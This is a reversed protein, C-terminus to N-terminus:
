LELRALTGICQQWSPMNSPESPSWIHPSWLNTRGNAKASTPRWLLSLISVTDQEIGRSGMRHEHFGTKISAHTPHSSSPLLTHKSWSAEAWYTWKSILSFCCHGLLAKERSCCQPFLVLLRQGSTAKQTCLPLGFIKLSGLSYQEQPSPASSSHPSCILRSNQWPKRQTYCLIHMCVCMCMCLCM